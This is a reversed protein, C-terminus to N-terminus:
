VAVLPKLKISLFDLEYKPHNTDEGIFTLIIVNVEQPMEIVRV